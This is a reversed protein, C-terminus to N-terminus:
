DADREPRPRTIVYETGQGLDTLARAPELSDSAGGDDKGDAGVSYLVYGRENEAAPVLRYVFPRGSYPDTPVADLWSPVLADLAPPLSGHEARYGEVALQLATGAVHCQVADSQQVFRAVAPVVMCLLFYRRGLDKVLADVDVATLDREPRPLAAQRIAERYFADAERAHAKRSALFFGAVNIIRPPQGDSGPVTAGFESVGFHAAAAPLMRGNGRGNDTFTWQLTDLFLLREGELGQAPRGLPTRARLRERFRRLTPADLDRRAMAFRLRQLALDAVSWGVLQNIMNAQHSCARAIMMAQDFAEVAEDLDGAELALEMSAVRARGLMRLGSLDSLTTEFLMGSEPPPWPYVANPCRGAVALRDFAGRRRLEDVAQRVAPGVEPSLVREYDGGQVQTQRYVDQMIAAAEALLPWGDEGAPQAAAAMAELQGGYDVSPRAEATLSWMVAYLILAVITLAAVAVLGVVVLTAPPWHWPKRKQAM